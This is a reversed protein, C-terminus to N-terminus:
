TITLRMRNHERRFDLCRQIAERVETPYPILHAELVLQERAANWALVDDVTCDPPLEPPITNVREVREKDLWWETFGMSTHYESYLPTGPYPIVIGLPNFMDVYPSIREMFRLSNDLERPTEDPFGFMFNVQCRIGVNRAARLTDEVAHLDIGKRVRALVGPDGSEIGMVVSFCGAKAMAGLRPADLQDVRAECWWRPEFSLSQLRQCLEFVRMRNVTFATDVFAFVTTGEREYWVRVEEVVRFTSHFRYRKGSVVDSCFTCHGPCGRSTLLQPALRGHGTPEIYWNRPFFEFADTPQALRDLDVLPPDPTQLVDDSQGRYTIGRVASLDSGSGLARCLEVLTNEGEHRVVVDFGRELAERPRATAHPGGAVLKIGDRPGLAEALGYANLATETFVSFGVVTPCWTDVM